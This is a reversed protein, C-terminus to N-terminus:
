LKNRHLNKYYAINTDEIFKLIEDKGIGKEASTQFIIPLTEWTKLLETKFYDINRILVNPGVKDSKTFTVVIPIENLGLKNIFEIDNKQPEHRADILVFVCCLNQRKEFYTFSMKKWEAAKAKPAKAFGYGPLDVIYFYNNIMFHVITQTKGPSSSTKALTKHNCLMNILSSKGVNSRGIFAYEPMNAKPCKEVDVCNSLFEASKIVM